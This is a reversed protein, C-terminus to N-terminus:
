PAVEIVDIAGTFTETCYTGSLPVVQGDSKRIWFIPGHNTGAYIDGNKAASVGAVWGPVTPSISVLKGDHTYSRVHGRHKTWDADIFGLYILDDHGRKMDTLRHGEPFSEFTWPTPEAVGFTFKVIERTPLFPKRRWLILVEDKSLAALAQLAPGCPYTGGVEVGMWVEEPWGTPCPLERPLRTWRVGVGSTCYTGEAAFFFGDRYDLGPGKASPVYWPPVDGLNWSMFCHQHGSPSSEENWTVGDIAGNSALGFVWGAQAGGLLGDEWIYAKTPQSNTTALRLKASPSCGDGYVIPLLGDYSATPPETPIVVGACLTSVVKWTVTADFVESNSDAAIYEADEAEATDKAPPGVVELEPAFDKADVSDGLAGTGGDHLGGFTAPEIDLGNSDTAQDETTLQPAVCGHAVVLATVAVIWPRLM